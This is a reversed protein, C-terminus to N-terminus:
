ESVHGWPTSVKLATAASIFAKQVASSAAEHDALVVKLFERYRGLDMDLGNHLALVGLTLRSNAHSRGQGNALTVHPAAVLEDLGRNIVCEDVHFAVTNRVKRYFDDNEWRDELKKLTLWPTSKADLLHRRALASRLTRIAIALERLTGVTFWVLTDLNRLHAVSDSGHPQMSTHICSITSDLRDVHIFCRCFANMVDRGILDLFGKPNRLEIQWHTDDQQVLTITPNSM